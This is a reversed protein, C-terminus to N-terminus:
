GYVKYTTSSSLLFFFTLLFSFTLFILTLVSGVGDVDRHVNGVICCGCRCLLGGVRM